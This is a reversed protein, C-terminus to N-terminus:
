GIAGDIRAAIAEMGKDGPHAAVGGHAFLGVAKMDDREGLDGLDVFAAGLVKAAEALVGDLPHKWFGSTVIKEAKGTKDLFRVLETYKELLYAKDTDKPCNEVIRMVIVDAGFDRAKGFFTVDANGAGLSREFTAAQCVCFAADDYRAGLKKALVHVYDKEASSAAMGWSGSWGIDAKPAHYTISNGVFLFRRGKGNENIFTVVAEPRVQNASSVTNKDMQAM